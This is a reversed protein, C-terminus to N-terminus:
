APSVTPVPSTLKTLVLQYGNRSSAPFSNKANLTSVWITKDLLREFFCDVSGVSLGAKLPFKGGEYWTEGDDTSIHFYLIGDASSLELIEVEILVGSSHLIMWYNSHGARGSNDYVRRMQSFDRKFRFIGRNIAASDGNDAPHYIWKSTFVLDTVQFVDVHTSGSPAYNRFNGAGIGMWGPYNGFNEPLTNAPPAASVGDWRILASTGSDGFGFYIYGSYPDQGVYHCHRVQCNGGINTNFELLISWNLGDDDSQWVRVQANAAVPNTNAAANTNYEGALIKRRGRITAVCWGRTGLINILTGQTSGNSKGTPNTDGLNLVASRSNDNNNGFQVGYNHSRMMYSKGSGSSTVVGLMVGNGINKVNDWNPNAPIATVNDAMKMGTSFSQGLAYTSVNDVQNYDYNPLRILSLPQTQTVGWLANQDDVELPAWKWMSQLALGVQYNLNSM